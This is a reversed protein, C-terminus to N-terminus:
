ETRHVNNIIEQIQPLWGVNIGARKSFASFAFEAGKEKLVNYFVLRDKCSSSAADIYTRLKTDVSLADAKRREEPKM